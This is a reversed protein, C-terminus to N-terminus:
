SYNLKTKTMQIKKRGERMLKMVFEASNFLEYVLLKSNTKKEKNLNTKGFFNIKVTIRRLKLSDNKLKCRMTTHM